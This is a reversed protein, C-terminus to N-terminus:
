MPRIGHRNAYCRTGNLSRSHGCRASDSRYSLTKNTRTNTIIGEGSNFFPALPMRYDPRDAQSHTLAHTLADWLRHTGIIKHAGYRFFSHLSNWGIKPVPTSPNTSTSLLNQSWIDFTLTVAPLTCRRLYKLKNQGASPSTVTSQLGDFEM